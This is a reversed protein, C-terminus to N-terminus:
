VLIYVYNTNTYNMSNFYSPYQTMYSRVEDLPFSMGKFDHGLVNHQYSYAHFELLGHTFDPHNIIFDYSVGMSGLVAYQSVHVFEHGMAMYLTKASTFATNSNFFVRSNGTLKNGISIPNTVALTRPNQAFFDKVNATPNEVTFAKLKDMPADPFWNKQAENLFEDTAPVPDGPNIGMKKCANSIQKGNRAGAVARIREHPCLLFCGSFFLFFM